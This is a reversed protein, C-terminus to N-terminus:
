IVEEGKDNKNIFVFVNGRNMLIEENTHYRHYETCNDSGDIVATVRYWRKNYYVFLSESISSYYFEM